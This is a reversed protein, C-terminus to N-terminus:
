GRPEISASFLEGNTPMQATPSQEATIFMEFRRLPTVTKLTGRLKEDVRLAGLNQPTDRDPALAWVVYTTAGFAVREPPALHRVEVEIATNDNDTLSTKVTGQAAPIDPSTSMRVTQTSSGCGALALTSALAAITSWRSTSMPQRTRM